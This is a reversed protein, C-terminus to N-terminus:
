AYRAVNGFEDHGLFFRDFCFSCNGFHKRAGHKADFECCSVSNEGVYRSFHAFVEDPDDWSVRDGDFEGGVVEGFGADGEAGFLGAAGTGGSETSM